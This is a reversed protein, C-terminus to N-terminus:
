MPAVPTHAIREIIAAPLGIWSRSPWSRRVTSKRSVGTRATVSHPRAEGRGGAAVTHASKFEREAALYDPM